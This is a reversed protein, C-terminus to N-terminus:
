KIKNNYEKILLYMFKIMTKQNLYKEAFANANKVIKKCKKQNYNAWYINKNLNTIKLDFPIYHTWPKLLPYFWEFSEAEHKVTVSNTFFHVRLREAWDANSGISIIYKYKQQDPFPISECVYLGKKNKINEINTFGVDFLDDDRCADFLKGRTLDKWGEAKLKGYEGNAWTQKSIKGRFIAQNKKDEWKINHKITNKIYNDWDRIPTGCGEKVGRENGMPMPINLINKEQPRIASFAPLKAGHCDNLLVIFTCDKIKYNRCVEHILYKTDNYRGHYQTPDTFYPKNNIINVKTAISNVSHYYEDLQKVNFSHKKIDKFLKKALFYLEM